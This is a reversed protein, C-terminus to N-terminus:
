GSAPAADGQAASQRRQRFPKKTLSQLMSAESSLSSFRQDCVSGLPTNTRYGPLTKRHLYSIDQLLHGPKLFSHKLIKKRFYDWLGKEIVIGNKAIKSSPDETHFPFM